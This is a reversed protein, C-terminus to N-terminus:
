HYNESELKSNRKRHPIMDATDTFTNVKLMVDLIRYQAPNTKVGLAAM